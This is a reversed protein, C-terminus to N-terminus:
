DSSSFVLLLPQWCDNPSLTQLRSLSKNTAFNKANETQM